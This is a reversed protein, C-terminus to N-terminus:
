RHGPAPHGLRYLLLSAVWRSPRVASPYETSRMTRTNENRDPNVGAPITKPFPESEPPKPFHCRLSTYKKPTQTIAL